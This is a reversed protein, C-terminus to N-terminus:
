AIQEKQEINAEVNGPDGLNERSLGKQSDEAEHKKIMMECAYVAGILQNLNTQALDRQQAFQAHQQRLQDLLSLKPEANGEQSM